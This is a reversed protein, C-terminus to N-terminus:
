TSNNDHRAQTWYDTVSYINDVCFGSRHIVVRTVPQEGPALAVSQPLTITFSTSTPVIIICGRYDPLISAELNVKDPRVIMALPM